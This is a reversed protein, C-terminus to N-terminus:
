FSFPPFQSQKRRQYLVLGLVFVALLIITGASPISNEM